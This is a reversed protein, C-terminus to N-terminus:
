EDDNDYLCDCALMGYNIMECLGGIKM